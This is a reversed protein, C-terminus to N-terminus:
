HKFGRWGQCSCGKREEEGERKMSGAITEPKLHLQHDIDNQSDNQSDNVKVNWVRVCPHRVSVKENELKGDNNTRKPVIRM